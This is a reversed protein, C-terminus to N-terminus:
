PVVENHKDQYQILNQHIERTNISSLLDAFVPGIGPLAKLDTENEPVVGGYSSIVVQSAKVIQHSKVYQFQLNSICSAILDPDTAAIAQVTFPCITAYLCNMAKRVPGDQCRAHLRAAVFLQFRKEEIDCTLPNTFSHWKAILELKKYEPLEKVSIFNPDAQRIRKSPRESSTNETKLITRDKVDNRFDDKRPLKSGSVTNGYSFKSFLNSKGITQDKLTYLDLVLSNSDHKLNETTYDDQNSDSENDNSSISQQQSDVFTEDCPTM